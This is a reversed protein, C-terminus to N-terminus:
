TLRLIYISQWSDVEFSMADPIPYVREKAVQLRNAFTGKKCVLVRQGLHLHKVSAGLRKVIGAGEHGFCHEDEPVIGMAM